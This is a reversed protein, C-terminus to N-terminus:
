IEAKAAPRTRGLAAGSALREVHTGTGVLDFSHAMTRLVWRVVREKDIASVAM